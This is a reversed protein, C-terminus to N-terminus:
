SSGKRPDGVPAITPTSSLHKARGETTLATAVRTALMEVREVVTRVHRVLSPGDVVSADLLQRLESAEAPHVVIAGSLHADLDRIRQIDELTVHRSNARVIESATKGQALEALVLSELEAMRPGLRELRVRELDAVNVFWVTRGSEDRTSTARLQRGQM